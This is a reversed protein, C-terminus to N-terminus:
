SPALAEKQRAVLARAQMERNKGLTPSENQGGCGGRAQVSETRGVFRNLRMSLWGVVCLSPSSLLLSSSGRAAMDSRWRDKRLLLSLLSGGTGGKESASSSAASSADPSANPEEELLEIAPADVAAAGRRLLGRRCGSSKVGRVAAPHKSSARSTSTGSAM